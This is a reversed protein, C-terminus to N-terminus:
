SVRQGCICTANKMGKSQQRKELFRCTSIQARAQPRISNLALAELSPSLSSGRRVLVEEGVLLARRTGLDPALLGGLPGATWSGGSPPEGHTLHPVCVLRPNHFNHSMKCTYGYCTFEGQVPYAVTSRTPFNHTYLCYETHM